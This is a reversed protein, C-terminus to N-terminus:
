KKASSGSRTAEIVDLVQAVTMGQPRQYLGNFGNRLSHRTAGTFRHHSREHARGLKARSAAPAAPVRCERHGRNDLSLGYMVRVCRAALYRVHIIKPQKFISDSITIPAAPKARGITERGM